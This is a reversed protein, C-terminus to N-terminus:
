SQTYLSQQRIEWAQSLFVSVEKYKFKMLYVFINDDNRVFTPSDPLTEYLICRLDNYISCRCLFHIEDEVEEANCSDCLRNHLEVQQFRGTEVKLPLIGHRFQTYLSRHRRNYLKHVYDECAINEKLLRFTRLKPKKVVEQKWEAEM